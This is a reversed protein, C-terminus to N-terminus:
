KGPRGAIWSGLVVIAAAIACALLFGPIAGLERELIRSLGIGVGAAIAVSLISSISPTPTQPDM